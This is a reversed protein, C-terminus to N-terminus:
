IDKYLRGQIDYLTYDTQFERNIFKIKAAISADVQKKCKLFDTAEEPVDAVVKDRILQRYEEVLDFVFSLSIIRNSLDARIDPYTTYNLLDLFEQPSKFYLHFRLYIESKHYLGASYLSRIHDVTYPTLELM